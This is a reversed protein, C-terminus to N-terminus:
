ISRSAGSTAAAEEDEFYTKHDDLFKESVKQHLKILEWDVKSAFNHIFNESLEQKASIIEWCDVDFNTNMEQLFEEPFLRLNLLTTWIFRHQLTRLLHLSVYQGYDKTLKSYDIRQSNHNVFSEVQELPLNITVPILKIADM